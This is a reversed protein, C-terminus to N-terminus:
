FRKNRTMFLIKEPCLGGHVVGVSHLYSIGKLVKKIIEAAFTEGFTEKQLISELLSGGNSYEQTIYLFDDSQNLSFHKTINPHSLRKLIIVEQAIKKRDMGPFRKLCKVARILGSKKHIM